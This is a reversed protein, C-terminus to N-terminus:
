KWMLGWDLCRLPQCRPKPSSSMGATPKTRLSIRRFPDTRQPIPHELITYETRIAEPTVWFRGYLTVELGAMRFAHITTALQTSSVGAAPSGQFFREAIEV